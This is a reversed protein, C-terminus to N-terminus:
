SNSNWDKLDGNAVITLRPSWSRRLKAASPCTITYSRVCSFHAYQDVFLALVFVVSTLMAELVFSARPNIALVPEQSSSSLYNELVIVVSNRM